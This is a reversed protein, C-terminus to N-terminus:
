SFSLFIPLDFIEKLLARGVQRAADWSMAEETIQYCSGANTTWGDPCALIPKSAFLIALLTAFFLEEMTGSPFNQSSLAPTLLSNSSFYGRRKLEQTERVIEM